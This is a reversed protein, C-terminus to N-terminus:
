LTSTCSKFIYTHNLRLLRASAVGIIIISAHDIRGYIFESIPIVTIYEYSTGLKNFSDFCVDGHYGSGDIELGM